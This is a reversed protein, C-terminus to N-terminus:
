YLTGVYNRIQLTETGYNQYNVLLKKRKKSSYNFEVSLDPINYGNNYWENIKPRVIVNEPL